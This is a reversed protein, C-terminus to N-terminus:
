VFFTCNNAAWLATVCGQRIFHQLNGRTRVLVATLSHAVFRRSNRTQCFLLFLLGVQKEACWAGFAEDPLPLEQIFM